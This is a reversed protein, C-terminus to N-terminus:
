IITASAACISLRFKRQQSVGLVLLCFPLISAIHSVNLPWDVICDSRPKLNKGVTNYSSSGVFLGHNKSSCSHIPLGGQVQTWYCFLANPARSSCSQGSRAASCASSATDQHYTQYTYLFLGMIPPLSSPTLIVSHIPSLNPPM